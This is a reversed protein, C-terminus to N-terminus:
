AADGLVGVVFAFINFDSITNNQVSISIIKGAPVVYLGEDLTNDTSAIVTNDSINKVVVELGSIAPGDDARYISLRKIYLTKGSPVLLRGFEFESGSTLTTKPLSWTITNSADAVDVKTWDVDLGYLIGYSYITGDSVFVAKIRLDTGSTATFTYNDSIGYDDLTIPEWTTGGDRTVYFNVAGTYKVALAIQNLSTVGTDPNFLNLTQFVEGALGVIRRNKLDIECNTKSLDIFDTNIFTDCTLAIYRSQLLWDQYSDYATELASNFAEQKVAELADTIKQASWLTREDTKTDDLGLEDVPILGDSDLAALGNPKGRYYLLVDPVQRYRDPNLPDKDLVNIVGLGSTFNDIQLANVFLYQGPDFKSVDNLIQITAYPPPKTVFYKYSVVVYYVGTTTLGGTSPNTYWNSDTLDITIDNTFEILVNDKICIGASVRITTQDIISTELGSIITNKGLTIAKLHRNVIASDYSAFPDVSRLQLSRWQSETLAM